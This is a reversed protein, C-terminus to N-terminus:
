DFSIRIGHQEADDINSTLEASMKDKINYEDDSKDRFNWANGGEKRWVTKTYKVGVYPVGNDQFGLRLADISEVHKRESTEVWELLKDTDIEEVSTPVGDVLQDLVLPNMYSLIKSLRTVFLEKDTALMGNVILKIGNTSM